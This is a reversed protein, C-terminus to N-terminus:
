RRGAAAPLAVEFTTRGPRSSATIEGGCRRVIHRSLALGLGSGGTAARTTFFLEFLRPLDSAPIGPGDDSVRVLARGSRDPDSLGELRIRGTAGVSQAANTLLNGWVQNLAEPRGCVLPLGAVDVELAVTPPLTQQIMRATRALEERIDSPEGEVSSAALQLASGLEKVRCASVGIADLNARLRAAMELAEMTLPPRGSMLSLIETLRPEWGGRIVCAAAKETEIALGGERLRQAVARIHQVPPLGTTVPPAPELIASALFAAPASRSGGAHQASLEVLLGQLNRRLNALAADLAASPTKLQHALVAAFQDAAQPQMM